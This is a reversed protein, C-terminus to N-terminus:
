CFLVSQMGVMSTRKLLFISCISGDKITPLGSGTQSTTQVAVTSTAFICSPDTPSVSFTSGSLAAVANALGLSFCAQGTLKVYLWEQVGSFGPDCISHLQGLCQHVTKKGRTLPFIYPM